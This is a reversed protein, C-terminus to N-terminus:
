PTRTRRAARQRGAGGRALAVHWHARPLCQCASSSPPPGAWSASSSKAPRSVPQPPGSPRRAHSHLTGLGRSRTRTPGAAAPSGVRLRKPRRQNNAATRTPTSRMTRKATPRKMNRNLLRLRRPRTRKATGGAADDAQHLQCNCAAVHNYLHIRTKKPNPVKRMYMTPGNVVPGRFEVPELLSCVCAYKRNQFKTQRGDSTDFLVKLQSTLDASQKEMGEKSAMWSEVASAVESSLM